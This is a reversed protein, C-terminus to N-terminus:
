QQALGLVRFEYGLSSETQVVRVKSGKVIRAWLAEPVCATYSSHIYAEHPDALYVEYDCEGPTLWGSNAKKGLVRTEVVSRTGVALNLLAPLSQTLVFWSFGLGFVLVVLYVGVQEFPGYTPMRNAPHTDTLFVWFLAVGGPFVLWRGLSNGEPFARFGRMAVYASMLGLVILGIILAKEKRSANERFLLGGGRRAVRPPLGAFIDEVAGQWDRAYWQGVLEREADTQPVPRWAPEAGFVAKCSPCAPADWNLDGNCNPCKAM